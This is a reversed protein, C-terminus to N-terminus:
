AARFNGNVKDRETKDSYRLLLHQEGILMATQSAGLIATSLFAFFILVTGDFFKLALGLLCISLGACSTGLLIIFETGTIKAIKTWIPSSLLGVIASMSVIAGAMTGSVGKDDLAVTTYM